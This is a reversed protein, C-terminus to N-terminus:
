LTAVVATQGHFEVRDGIALQRRRRTDVQGNVRVEGGQIAMKAQGGSDVWGQIKLFQELTLKTHAESDYDQSM